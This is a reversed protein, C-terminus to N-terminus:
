FQSRLGGKSKGIHIPLKPKSTPKRFLIRGDSTAAASKTKASQTSASPLGLTQSDGSVIRSVDRTQYFDPALEVLWRPDIRILDRIYECTTLVSEHYLIWDPSRGLYIYMSTPHISVIRQDRLTRYNGDAHLKAANAFFGTVFCKRIATSEDLNEVKHAETTNTRFRELYRKLHRRIETARVLAPYHLMHEQCWSRQQQTGRVDLFENYVTLYMLHDGDAHAFSEMSQSIKLRREQSGRPSQFIDGVSLLSAISLVDDVCDYQFSSLLIKALMPSIPFEAMHTGLPEILQCHDNVAGLAYLLEFARILAEPSPPSLFAFHAIDQIGMSLLYLVVTSLNTRQIMPITNSKLVNEYHEQTCLRWCKGPMTRGARGARQTAAAQSVSTTLLSEIGTFPNYYALKVFCSDIVFVVGEITLSTEAITTAVIVKRTFGRPPPVFVQQQMHTPLNAYLPLTLVHSPAQDQLQRVVHDIEEQGPLFVLIDGPGELRDIALITEVTKVLYNSTPTELYQIEVPYQRAEVSIAIVDKLTSHPHRFFKVFLDVDLTASAIIVRLEPRKRQIKRLLGM